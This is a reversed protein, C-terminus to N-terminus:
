LYLEKMRILWVHVIRWYEKITPLQWAIILVVPVMLALLVLLEAFMTVITNIKAVYHIFQWNLEEKM